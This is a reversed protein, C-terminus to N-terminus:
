QSLQIVSRIRNKTSSVISKKTHRLSKEVPNVPDAPYHDMPNMGNIRYIRDFNTTQNHDVAANPEEHEEHEEHNM